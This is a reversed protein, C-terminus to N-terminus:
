ELRQPRPRAIDGTALRLLVLAALRAREVLSDLILYEGPSHIDGGCPGLTDVTTVGAAALRNGDSVGGTARWSIKMGLDEGCDAIAQLLDRTPEDLPKPPATFRGHLEVELGDRHEGAVIAAIERELAAQDEAADCRVNLGVIALDPVVNLPGGGAIRGVNVIVGERSGNLRDLAAVLRAAAVV